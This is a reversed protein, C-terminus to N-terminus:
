RRALRIGTVQWRADPPFFNRYTPRVHAASTFCSGGRLVMQNVMFKGNYEGVAGAAPAFGPYPSYPSATWTWAGGAFGSGPAAAIPVLVGGDVFQGDTSLERALTEWEAETPLRAGKFRAFADAEYYSVHSVPASPHLAIMGYLSFRQWSEGVREWYLPARWGEREVAAWGDSLWLEPRAYGGADIFESYDSVTVPSSAIAFPSLHVRHRPRENDFAFGEGEHGVDFLGGDHEVFEPAPGSASAPPAPGTLPLRLPNQYLLHQVDTLLLEQHQQEHNLGLELLDLVDGRAADETGLLEYVRDDISARYAYVQDVTPRTLMGRRARPHRAGVMEYYSNHLYAFGDDYPRFSEEHPALVFTEFFWATHGLHWKAPSADPMSQVVYDETALPECLRETLARTERYKTLLSAAREAAASTM